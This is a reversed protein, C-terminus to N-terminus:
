TTSHMRKVINNLTYSFGVTASSTTIQYDADIKYKRIGTWTAMNQCVIDTNGTIFKNKIKCNNWYFNMTGNFHVTSKLSDDSVCVGTAIKHCETGRIQIISSNNSCILCLGALLRGQPKYETYASFHGQGGCEGDEFSSPSCTINCRDSQGLDSRVPTICFCHSKQLGFLVDTINGRSNNKMAKMNCQRYCNGVTNNNIVYYNTPQNTPSSSIKYCGRYAIWPTYKGEMSSQAPLKVTTKLRPNRINDQRVLIDGPRSARESKVKSNLAEIDGQCEITGTMKCIFLVMALLLTFM